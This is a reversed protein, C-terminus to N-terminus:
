DLDQGTMGTVVFVQILLYITHMFKNHIIWHWLVYWCWQSFSFVSGFLFQVFEFCYLVEAHMLFLFLLICRLWGFSTEEIICDFYVQVQQVFIVLFLIISDVINSLELKCFWCSSIESHKVSEVEINGCPSELKFVNKRIASLAFLGFVETSLAGVFWNSM